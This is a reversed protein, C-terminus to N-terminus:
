FILMVFVKVSFCLCYGPVHNGACFDNIFSSCLLIKLFIAKTRQGEMETEITGAIQNKKNM